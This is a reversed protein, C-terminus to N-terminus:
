FLAPWCIGRYSSTGRRMHGSALLIDYQESFDNSSKIGLEERVGDTCLGQRNLQRIVEEFYRGPDEVYYCNECQRNGFDFLEPFRETVADLAAEVEGLLLPSATSCVPDTPSSSPLRCAGGAPPPSPTPAPTPAAEPGAPDPSPSPSPGAAGGLVTDPPASANAV